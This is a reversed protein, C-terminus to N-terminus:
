YLTKIFRWIKRAENIDKIEATHYTYGLYRTLKKYIATRSLIKNQWLPDLIKHIEKRANKIEPSPICGLPKTPTGTKHHCGVTENCGDCKWFPINYLNAIHSYVERGDTLRANVYSNCNCCWISKTKLNKQKAM